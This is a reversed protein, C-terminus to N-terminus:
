KVQGIERELQDIQRKTIVVDPHKETYKARLDMLETKLQKLRDDLEEARSKPPSAPVTRAPPTVSKANNKVPPSKSEGPKAQDIRPMEVIVPPNPQAAQALTIPIPMSTFPLDQAINLLPDTHLPMLRELAVVAGAGLIAAFLPVYLLHPRLTLRSQSQSRKANLPAIGTSASSPSEAPEAVPGPVKAPPASAILSQSLNRLDRAMERASQYRHERNKALAKAVVADFTPPVGPAAVSPPLPSQHAIKYMLNAFDRGEFPTHGVLLEYLVVALSFIDTRGDLPSGTVQEPSMYKPSGVMLGPMTHSAAPMQAIGFDTIKVLGSKTLAINAPKVDRHIIGNDHAYALADAVEALIRAIREPALKTGADIVQKLSLGELLEMALYAIEGTEGVDHITVINPHNLRGASKAERYFREKFGEMESRDFRLSITKVAVPREILPDFARYVTGMAGEGLVKLVRYRGLAKLMPVVQTDAIM